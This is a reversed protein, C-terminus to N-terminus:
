VVRCDVEAHAISNLRDLEDLPGSDDARTAFDVFVAPLLLLVGSREVVGSLFAEARPVGGGTGLLGGGVSGGRAVPGTEGRPTHWFVVSPLSRLEGWRVLEFAVIEEGGLGDFFANSRLLLVVPLLLPKLRELV